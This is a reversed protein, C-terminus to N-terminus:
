RANSVTAGIAARAREPDDVVLIKRNGHDSYQATLQVGAEALRLMLIGLSGPVDADLEAIVAPEVVIPGFGARDLANVGAAADRVLYHSTGSWM